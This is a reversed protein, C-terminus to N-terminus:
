SHNRETVSKRECHTCCIVSSSQSKAKEDRPFGAGRLVSYLHSATIRPLTPAQGPSSRYGASRPRQTHIGGHIEAPNVKTEPGEKKRLDTRKQADKKRRGM